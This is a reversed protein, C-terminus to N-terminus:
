LRVERRPRRKHAWPDDTSGLRVEAPERHGNRQAGQEARWQEIAAEFVAANGYVVRPSPRDTWWPKAFAAAIVAIHDGAGLEPHERIRGVIPVHHAAITYRTGAAANFAALASEALRWESPAVRVGGVKPLEELPPLPPEVSPEVSPEDIYPTNSIDPQVHKFHGTIRPPDVPCPTRNTTPSRGSMTDPQDDPELHLCIADTRRGRGGDPGRRERHLLGLEEFAKLHRRITRQDSGCYEALGQEGPWCVGDNDAHDGIRVLTLRQGQPLGLQRGTQWAWNTARVSM